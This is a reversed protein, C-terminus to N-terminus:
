KFLFQILKCNGVVYYVIQLKQPKVIYPWNTIKFGIKLIKTKRHHFILKVCILVIYIDIYIYICLSLIYYM